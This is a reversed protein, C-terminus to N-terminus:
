EVSVASRPGTNTRANESGPWRGEGPTGFRDAYTARCENPKEFWGTCRWMSRLRTRVLKLPRACHGCDFRGLPANRHDAARYL